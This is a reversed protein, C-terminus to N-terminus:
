LFVFRESCYLVQSNPILIQKDCSPSCNIGVLIALNAGVAFFLGQCPLFLLLYALTFPYVYVSWYQLFTMDLDVDIGRREGVVAVAANPRGGGSGTIIGSFEVETARKKGLASLKPQSQVRSSLATTTPRSNITTALSRSSLTRRHSTSGNNNYVLPM